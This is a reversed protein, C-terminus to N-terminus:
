SVSAKPRQSQVEHLFRLQDQPQLHQYLRSFSLYLLAPDAELSAGALFDACILELCHSRSKESGVMLAATHLAREVVEMQGESLRFCLTETPEPYQGTFFHEVERKFEERPLQRAKHLWTASQFARGQSRAVKALEAGKSWGIQDIERQQLFPRLHDHISMLYYAKRRSAPFKRALYEEFNHCGQELRWHERDRVECLY